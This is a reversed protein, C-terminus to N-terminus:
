VKGMPTTTRGKKPGGGAFDGTDSPRAAKGSPKTGGIGNTSGMRAKANTSKGSGSGNSVTAAAGKSAGMGSSNLNSMRSKAGGVKGAGGGNAVATGSAKAGGMGSSNLTSTRGKSTSKAM